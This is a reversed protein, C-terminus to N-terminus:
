PSKRENRAGSVSGGAPSLPNGQGDIRPQPIGKEKVYSQIIPSNMDGPDKLTWLRDLIGEIILGTVAKELAELVCLQAPENTTLGTEVELLRQLSVFRFLQVDVGRSLITKTTSVTKLVRGSKVDVARLYLSVQDVRYDISGGLGFYKAGLGGTVVNSDYAIIGGELVIAASLLPPLVSKEKDGNGMEGAAARIIKRETLLNQLGEREVPVFSNSDNLAQILMSAAGQTVATSFSTANPLPKYQGTQDRFAYVSVVIKKQLPPLSVLDKHAASTYTSSARETALNALRATCGFLLPLLAPLLLLNVWRRRNERPTDNMTADKM